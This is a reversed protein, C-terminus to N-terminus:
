LEHCPQADGDGIALCKPEIKRPYNRVCFKAAAFFKRFNRDFLGAHLRVHRLMGVSPVTTPSRESDHALQAGVPSMSKPAIELSKSRLLKRNRFNTSFKPEFNTTFILMVGYQREPCQTFLELTQPAVARRKNAAVKARNRLLCKAAAFVKRSNRESIRRSDCSIERAAAHWRVACYKSM